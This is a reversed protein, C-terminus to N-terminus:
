RIIASAYLDAVTGPDTLETGVATLGFDVVDAGLESLLRALAAEAADAQEQLDATVVPIALVGALANAPLQDLLVKLAGSFTSRWAPTAVILVAADQVNLLAESTDPDAPVLLGPRLEAVDVTTFSGEGRSAALREGLATALKLTSSAPDPHGSVVVVEAM